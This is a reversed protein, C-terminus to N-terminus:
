QVHKDPMARHHNKDTLINLINKSKVFEVCNSEVSAVSGAKMDYEEPTYLLVLHVVVAMVIVRTLSLYNRNSINFLVKIDCQETPWPSRFRGLQHLSRSREFCSPHTSVKKFIMCNSKNKSLTWCPSLLAVRFNSSAFIHASNSKNYAFNLKMQIKRIQLSWIEPFPTDEKVILSNYTWM